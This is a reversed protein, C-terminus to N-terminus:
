DYLAIVEAGRLANNEELLIRLLVGSEIDIGEDLDDESIFENDILFDIVDENEVSVGLDEAFEDITVVEQEGVYVNGARYIVQCSWHNWDDVDYNFKACFEEYHTSTGNSSDENIKDIFEQHPNHQTLRSKIAKEVKHPNPKTVFINDLDEKSIGLLCCFDDDDIIELHAVYVEYSRKVLEVERESFPKKSCLTSLIDMCSTQNIDSACNRLDDNIQILYDLYPCARDIIEKTYIETESFFKTQFFSEPIKGPCSANISKLKEVLKMNINIIFRADFLVGDQGIFYKKLHEFVFVDFNKFDNSKITDVIAASYLDFRRKTETLAEIAKEKSIGWDLMLDSITETEFESLNEMSPDNRFSELIEIKQSARKQADNITM